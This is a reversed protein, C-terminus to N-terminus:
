INYASPGPGCQPVTLSFFIRLYPIHTMRTQTSRLISFVTYIYQISIIMELDHDLQCLKPLMLLAEVVQPRLEASPISVIVILALSAM